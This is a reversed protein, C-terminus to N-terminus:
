VGNEPQKPRVRGLRREDPVDMLECLAWWVRRAPSGAALAEMATRDGFEGLAAEAALRRGTGEGFEETVLRWFDSERM